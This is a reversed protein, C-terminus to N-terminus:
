RCRKGAEEKRTGKLLGRNRWLFMGFFAWSLALVIGAFVQLPMGWPAGLVPVLLGWTIAVTQLAAKVKGMWNAGLVTGRIAAASRFGDHLLERALFLHPILWSVLGAYALEYFLAVLVVKDVTADLYMGLATCQNRRRALWGDFCDTLMAAVFLIAAPVARGQRFLVIVAPLAMLRALTLLNPLNM